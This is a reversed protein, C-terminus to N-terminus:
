IISFNFKTLDICLVNNAIGHMAQYDRLAVIDKLSLGSLMLTNHNSNPNIFAMVKVSKGIANKDSIYITEM